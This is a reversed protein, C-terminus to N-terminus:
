HSFLAIDQDPSQRALEQLGNVFRTQVELISEGGPIRTRSRELNWRQWQPNSALAEIRCHTWEGFDIEIFAAHVETELGLSRALPEATELARELPSSIIRAIPKGDLTRALAEAQARGLTNLHVGPRRGALTHGVWDTQGHRILYFTTM